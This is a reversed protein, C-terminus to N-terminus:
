NFCIAVVTNVDNDLVREISSQCIWTHRHKLRVFFVGFGDFNSLLLSCIVSISKIYKEESNEKPVLAQTIFIVFWVSTLCM